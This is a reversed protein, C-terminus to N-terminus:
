NFLKLIRARRLDVDAMGIIGSRPTNPNGTNLKGRWQQTLGADILKWAGNRKYYGLATLIAVAPDAIRDPEAYLDIGVDDSATRFGNAFTTMIDGGGRFLYGDGPRVNGEKPRDYVFNGLKVPQRVYPIAAATTKFRSPWTERIREPTSYTLVERLFRFDMTEHPVNSLFDAVRAPTQLDPHRALAKGRLLCVAAGPRSAAFGVLAGWTAPGDDGDDKLGLARQVPKWNM